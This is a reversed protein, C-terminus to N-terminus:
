TSRKLRNDGFMGSTVAKVGGAAPRPENGEWALRVGERERSAGNADKRAFANPWFHNLRGQGYQPRHFRATRLNPEIDAQTSGDSKLCNALASRGEIRWIRQSGSRVAFRDPASESDISREVAARLLPATERDFSRKALFLVIALPIAVLAMRLSGVLLPGRRLPPWETTWCLLPALMITLAYGTPLRGFFRGVFLLGFLGVVGIGILGPTASRPAIRSAAVASGAVAAALPFSAAGGAIYGAMMVALGATPIAMALALPISAGPSRRSLWLLLAWVAASLGGSIALVVAVQWSPWAREPGSLYVSDHLLVRGMVACLSLRCCWVLRSPFARVAALLEIVIVVPLVIALLRDLGNMPPWRLRVHLVGFGVVLGLGTGLVSAADFKAAGAPWRRWCLALLLLASAAAAAAMAQLYLQPQPM